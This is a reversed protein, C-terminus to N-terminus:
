LNLFVWFVLLLCSFVLGTFMLVSGLQHRDWGGTGERDARLSLISRGHEKRQECEQM